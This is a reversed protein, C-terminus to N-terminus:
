SSLKEDNKKLRNEVEAKIQKQEKLSIWNGTITLLKEAYTSQDITDTYPYLVVSPISDQVIV